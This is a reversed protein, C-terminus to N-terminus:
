LFVFLILLKIKLLSRGKGVRLTLHPTVVGKLHPQQVVHVLQRLTRPGGTVVHQGPGRGAQGQEVQHGAEAVSAESQSEDLPARFTRAEDQFRFHVREALVVM